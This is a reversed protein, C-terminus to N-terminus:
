DHKPKSSQLTKLRSVLRTLDAVIGVLTKYANSAQSGIASKIGTAYSVSGITGNSQKTQMAQRVADMNGSGTSLRPIRAKPILGEGLGSTLATFATDEALEHYDFRKEQAGTSIDVGQKTANGAAGAAGGLVISLAIADSAGLTEPTNVVGWGIIGGSV